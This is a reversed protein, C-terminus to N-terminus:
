GVALPLVQLGENATGGVLEELGTALSGPRTAVFPSNQWGIPKTYPLVDAAIQEVVSESGAYSGDHRPWHVVVDTFGLEAARGVADRFCEVSSLSYVPASDLNLYRDM